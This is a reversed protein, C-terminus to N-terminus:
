SIPIYTVIKIHKTVKMTHTNQARIIVFNTFQLKVQLADKLHVTNQWFRSESTGILLSLM